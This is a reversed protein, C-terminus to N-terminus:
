PVPSADAFLEGRFARYQASAFLADLEALHAENSSRVLRVRRLKEVYEQQLAIPPLSVPLDKIIGMNLGSMIAGKAAKELYSRATPHQLFYSHLFEPHCKDRDLTICCLHKTNIATGIDDPVVACRGCTGMITILVDGPHVEYRSLRAYKQLSIYRREGWRFENSVVNDIGLVAVGSDAFESHLLQSGFPGTRISGTASGAVGEVTVMPWSNPSKGFMDLFTSQAFDDLLDIAERRGSRLAEVEDLVDVTRRQEPVSPLLLQKRYADNRNLGPVAAARNLETLRMATLRYFLWKLDCVTSSEDIYYTTDIPWCSDSSYTVEGISGKRGIVITPGLTFGTTHTGITGNSGFVRYPGEHRQSAALAKGYRFQCIEGLTVLKWSSTTM